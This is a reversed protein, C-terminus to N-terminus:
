KSCQFFSCYKGDSDIWFEPTAFIWKAEKGRVTPRCKLLTISSKGNNQIEQAHQTSIWQQFIDAISNLSPRM